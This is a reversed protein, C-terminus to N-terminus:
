GLRHPRGDDVFAGAAGSQDGTALRKLLGKGVADFQQVGNLVDVEVVCHRDRLRVDFTSFRDTLPPRIDVDPPDSVAARGPVTQGALWGGGAFAAQRTTGVVMPAM